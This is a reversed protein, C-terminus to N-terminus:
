SSLSDMGEVEGLDAAENAAPCHRAIFAQLRTVVELLATVREFYEQMHSSQTGLDCAQLAGVLLSQQSNLRRLEASLSRHLQNLRDQARGSLLQTNQIGVM